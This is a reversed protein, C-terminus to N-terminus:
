NSCKTVHQMRASAHRCHGSCRSTVQTRHRLRTGAGPCPVSHGRTNGVTSKDYHASSLLALNCTIDDSLSDSEVLFEESSLHTRIQTKMHGTSLATANAVQEDADAPSCSFVNQNTNCALAHATMLVDAPDLKDPRRWGFTSDWMCCRQLVTVRAIIALLAPITRGGSARTTTAM